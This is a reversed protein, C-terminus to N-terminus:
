QYPSGLAGQSQGLVALFGASIPPLEDTVVATLVAWGIGKWMCQSRAEGEAFEDLPFKSFICSGFNM